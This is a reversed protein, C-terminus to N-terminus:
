GTGAGWAWLIFNGARDSASTTYEVNNKHITDFKIAAANVAPILKSYNSTGTGMITNVLWPAAFFSASGPYTVAGNDPPANIANVKDENSCEQLNDITLTVLNCPNLLSQKDVLFATASLGSGLLCMLKTTPRLLTGGSVKFSHLAHIKKDQDTALLVNNIDSILKFNNTTTKTRPGPKPTSLPSRTSL